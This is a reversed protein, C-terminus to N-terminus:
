DALEPLDADADPYSDQAGYGTAAYAGVRSAYRAAEDMDAGAALQAVFAGAFADGCGTTDVATVKAAPIKVMQGGWSCLAGKSGLTLVVSAFGAARLADALAEPGMGAADVGYQGLILGAEHENAILPDAKALAKADVKIVPALNVVVRGRAMAIAAEIGSAPIEGQLLVIDAEEIAQRHEAVFAADVKRNAGPAVVISNEGDDAVTIVALGTAGPMRAVGNMDMGSDGLWRLSSDAYEDAGVAGVMAVEAGLLAAAVAQNAGKGGPSVTVNDGLITEGPAPHRPVRVSLDANISGVVVIRGAM